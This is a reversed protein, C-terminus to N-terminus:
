ATSGTIRRTRGRWSPWRLHEVRTGWSRGRGATGDPAMCAAIPAGVDRGYGLRSWLEPLVSRRSRACRWMGSLRRRHAYPWLEPLVERRHADRVRFM